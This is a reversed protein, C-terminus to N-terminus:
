TACDSEGSRPQDSRESGAQFSPQLGGRRSHLPVSPSREHRRHDCENEKRVRQAGCEPSGSGGLRGPDRSVACAKDKKFCAADLGRNWMRSGPGGCFGWPPHHRFRLSSDRRRFLPIGQRVPDPSSPRGPLCRRIRRVELACTPFPITEDSHNRGSRPPM